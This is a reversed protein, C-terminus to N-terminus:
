RAIRELSADAAARAEGPSAGRARARQILAARFRRRGVYQVAVAAALCAFALVVVHPSLRDASALLAGGGLFLCAAWMMHGTYAHSARQTAQGLEVATPERPAAEPAPEGHAAGARLATDHPRAAGAPQPRREQARPRAEDFVLSTVTQEM